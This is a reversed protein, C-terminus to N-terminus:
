IFMVICSASKREKDCAIWYFILTNDSYQKLPFGDCLVLTDWKVRVNGKSQILVTLKINLVCLLRTILGKRMAIGNCTM